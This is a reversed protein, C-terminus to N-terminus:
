LQRLSSFRVDIEVVSRWVRDMMRGLTPRESKNGKKKQIHPLATRKLGEGGKGGDPAM